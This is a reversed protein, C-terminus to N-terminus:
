HFAICSPLMRICTIVKVRDSTDNHLDYGVCISPWGIIYLYTLGSHSVYTGGYVLVSLTHIIHLGSVRKYHRKVKTKYLIMGLAPFTMCPQVANCARIPLIESTSIINRECTHTLVLLKYEHM